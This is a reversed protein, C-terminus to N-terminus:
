ADRSDMVRNLRTSGAAPGAAERLLQWGDLAMDCDVTADWKESDHVYSTPVTEEELTAFLYTRPTV